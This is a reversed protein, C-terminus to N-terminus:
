MEQTLLCAPEKGSSGVYLVEPEAPVKAGVWAFSVSVGFQDLYLSHHHQGKRVRTVKTLQLKTETSWGPGKM